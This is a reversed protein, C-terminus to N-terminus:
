IRKSEGCGCPLRATLLSRLLLFWLLGVHPTPRYNEVTWWWATRRVVVINGEGITQDKVPWSRTM